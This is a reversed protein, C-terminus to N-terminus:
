VPNLPGMDERGRRFGHKAKLALGVRYLGHEIDFPAIEPLGYTLGNVLTAMEAKTTETYHERNVDAPLKHGIVTYRIFVRLMEDASLLEAMPVRAIGNNANRRFNHFVRTNDRQMGLEELMASLRRIPEKAYRAPTNTYTL